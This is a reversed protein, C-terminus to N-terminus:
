WNKVKLVQFNYNKWIAEMTESSFDVTMWTKKGGMPLTHWKKQKKQNKKKKKDETESM